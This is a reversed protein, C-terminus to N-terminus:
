KFKLLPVGLTGHLIKGTTSEVSRRDTSFPIKTPRQRIKRRILSVEGYKAFSRPVQSKSVNFESDFQEESIAISEVHQFNINDKSNQVNSKKKKKKLIDRGMERYFKDMKLLVFFLFEYFLRMRLRITLPVRPQNKRDNPYKKFKTKNRSFRLHSLCM